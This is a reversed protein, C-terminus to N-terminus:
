KLSGKESVTELVEIDIYSLAAFCNFDKKPLAISRAGTAAAAAINYLPM